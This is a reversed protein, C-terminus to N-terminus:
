VCSQLCSKLRLFFYDWGIGTWLCDQDVFEGRATMQGSKPLSSPPTQLGRGLWEVAESRGGRFRGSAWIDKRDPKTAMHRM